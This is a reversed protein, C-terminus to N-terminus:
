IYGKFAIKIKELFSSQNFNDVKQKNNEEIEINNLLDYYKMQLRTGEEAVEYMYFMYDIIKNKDNDSMSSEKITKLIKVDDM